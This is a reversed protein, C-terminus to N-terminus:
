QTSEVPLPPDYFTGQRVKKINSPEQNPPVPIRGKLKFTFSCADRVDDGFLRGCKDKFTTANSIGLQKLIQVAKDHAPIRKAGAIVIEPPDDDDFCVFWGDGRFAPDAYFNGDVARVYTAVLSM